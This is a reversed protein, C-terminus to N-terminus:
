AQELLAAVEFGRATLRVRNRKPDAPDVYTEAWQLGPKWTKTNIEGLQAVCRCVSARSINLAKGIESQQVDGLSAILLFCSVLQASMLPEGAEKRLVEFSRLM